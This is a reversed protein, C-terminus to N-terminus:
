RSRLCSRILGALERFDIRVREEDERTRSLFLIWDSIEEDSADLAYGNWELFTMMCVFATRKNGEISFCQSEAIGDALVAAQLALDADEYMWFTYPKIAASEICARGNAGGRLRDEVDSEPCSFYQAHLDLIDDVSLYKYPCSADIAGYEMQLTHFSPSCICDRPQDRTASDSFATVGLSVPFSSKAVIM